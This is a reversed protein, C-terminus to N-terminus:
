EHAVNIIWGLTSSILEGLSCM